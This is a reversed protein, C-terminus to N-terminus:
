LEMLFSIMNADKDMDLKKRLRSRAVNLSNQSQRTISAIDKTSMNLRLFACLKRENPSLDPCLQNLRHYFEEHVQQFRIEFEKWVDNDVATQLAVVLDNVSEQNEKKLNHKISLLKRSIEAILESKRIMYMVNTVLEKNKFELENELTKKELELHQSKLRSIKINARMKVIIAVALIVIVILTLIILRTRVVSLEQEKELIEIKRKNELLLYRKEMDAIKQLSEQNLISDKVEDYRRRYDYAKANEGRENYLEAITKYVLEKVKLTKIKNAIVLSKNLHFIAENFRGTAKYVKGLRLHGESVGRKFDIQRAINLSQHYNELALTYEKMEFYVDGVGQLAHFVGRKEGISRMYDLGKRFYSMALDYEKLISYVIAINLAASASYAKAGWRESVAFAEKYYSLSVDTNGMEAYVNAINVLPNLYDISDGSFSVVEIAKMHYGIAKDYDSLNFYVIGTSTYAMLMGHYYGISQALARSSDLYPLGMSAGEKRSLFYGIINYASTMSRKDDMKRALELAEHAKSITFELDNTGSKEALHLLLEIKEKGKAMQIRGELSDLVSQAQLDNMSYLWCAVFVFCTYIIRDM